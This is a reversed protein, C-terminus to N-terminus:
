LGSAVRKVAEKWGRILQKKQTPDLTPSFTTYENSGRHVSKDIHAEALLAVGLATTEPNSNRAVDIGLIDAQFQMLFNNASAGGDVALTTIALNSEAKIVDLVDMTQFAISELAARAIHEKRATRTLGMIAGRANMDWYPAGLGAFAPVFYVGGNDAVKQALEETDAANGIIGLSDRLWQITAGAMFVSGELAYSVHGNLQWAITTLLGHNSFVPQDGTNTLMFCGTGYTNKVMGAETCGHGFLSAQQDGAIGTIPISMNQFLQSDTTGFYGSSPMVQPLISAPIHFLDLLKEDWQLRCIDFLMTRSANTVDTAHVQGGTLKWLLWADITGALLEGKELAVKAEHSHALIWEIKSASFYSDVILGTIKHIYQSLKPDEKIAKCRESTRTDQWVIARHVPLGTRRNWLVVTERQNTIGMTRVDGDQIRNRSFLLRIVAVQLEFIELADHEVWGHHPFYQTFEKQEIDVIRHRHDFLIARCSTTGQDIALVYKSTNM